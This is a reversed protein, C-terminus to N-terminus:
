EPLRPLIDASEGMVYTVTQDQSEPLLHEYRSLDSNLVGSM